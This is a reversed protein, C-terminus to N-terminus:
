HLKALGYGVVRQGPSLCSVYPVTEPQTRFCSHSSERKKLCSPHLFKDVDDGPLRIKVVLLSTKAHPGTVADIVVGALRV